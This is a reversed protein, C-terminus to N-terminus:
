KQRKKQIEKINQDREMGDSLEETFEHENLLESVAIDASTLNNNPASQNNWKDM